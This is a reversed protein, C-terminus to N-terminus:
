RPQWRGLKAANVRSRVCRVFHAPWPRVDLLDQLHPEHELAEVLVASRPFHPFQPNSHALQEFGPWTENTPTGIVRFIKMLTGIESDGNFIPLGSAM